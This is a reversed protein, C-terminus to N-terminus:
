FIFYFSNILLIDFSFVQVISPNLYYLHFKTLLSDRVIVGESTTVPYGEPQEKNYDFSEDNIIERATDAGGTSKKILGRSKKENKAWKSDPYKEQIEDMIADEIEQDTMDPNKFGLEKAMNGMEEQVTTQGGGKGTKGGFVEARNDQTQQRAEETSTRKYEGNSTKRAIDEISDNEFDIPNKNQYIRQAPEEEKEDKDKKLEEEGGTESSKDDIPKHTGKKIAADRNDATDFTSVNGKKSLAQFKGERLNGIFENTANETWGFKILSERLFQLHTPNKLNPAGGKCKHSFDKLIKDWTNM